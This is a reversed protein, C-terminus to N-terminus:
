LQKVSFGHMSKLDLDNDFYKWGLEDSLIKGLTSKGAGMPGILLLKKGEKM